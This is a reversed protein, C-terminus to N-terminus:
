TGKAVMPVTIATQFDPREGVRPAALDVCTAPLSPAVAYRITERGFVIRVIRVIVIADPRLHKLAFIPLQLITSPRLLDLNWEGRDRANFESTVADLVGNANKRYGPMGAAEVIM